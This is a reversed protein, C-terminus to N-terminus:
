LNGVDTALMSTVQYIEVAVKQEFYFFFMKLIASQIKNPCNIKLFQFSTIPMLSYMNLIQSLPNEPRMTWSRCINASGKEHYSNTKSLLQCNFQSYSHWSPRDTRDAKVLIIRCFQLNETFLKHLFSPHTFRSIIKKQGNQLNM